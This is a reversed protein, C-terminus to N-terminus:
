TKEETLDTYGSIQAALVGPKYGVWRRPGGQEPGWRAGPITRSVEKYYGAGYGDWCWEAVNGYM